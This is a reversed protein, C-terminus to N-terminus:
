EELGGVFAAVAENFATPQELMALHAADEIEVLDGEGIEDALYEHYQPPTLQDYEGYVALAPVDIRHVDDRVDFRHCTRFDRRVTGQGCERMREISEDRLEPGPDHLLRDPGHLFELARDFDTDLWELLDQLVGLKAGTGALVIGDVDPERELLLHMAVAGGLSSGGLIRADTEELVAAVDDAYASLATYGASAAVDESDGHGSLDITVVPYRDALRHQAKWAARSGGSGHVFCIAPGTGGRDAVEYATERGHHRVTEM